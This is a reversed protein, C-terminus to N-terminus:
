VSKWWMRASFSRAMASRSASMACWFAALASSCFSSRRISSTSITTNMSFRVGFFLALELM